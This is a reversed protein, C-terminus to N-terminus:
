LQCSKGTGLRPRHIKAHDQRTLVSLNDPRDDDKKRNIHHVVENPLLLRSIKKEVVLCARKTYNDLARHHGPARTFIYGDVGKRERKEGKWSPSKDGGRNGIAGKDSCARSCFKGKGMKVKSPYILFAQGCHQCIREVKKHGVFQGNPQHEM